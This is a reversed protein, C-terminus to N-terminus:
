RNLWALEKGAMPLSIPRGYKTAMRIELKTEGEPWDPPLTLPTYWAWSEGQSLVGLDVDQVVIEQRRQGCVLSFFLNVPECLRGAGSNRWVHRLTFSEGPAVFDPVEATEPLLRYGMRRLGMAVLDPRERCFAVSDWMLMMYNPHLMLAEEISDEVFYGRVGEPARKQNYGGFFECIMPRRRRAAYYDQMLQADWQKVAGGIGDRRLSVNEYSLAHDFASLYRFEEHSEPCHLPLPLDPRWEYSCSLTLTKKSFAEHWIDVIARLAQVHRAKSEHIYGSHWEGWEGYGRLDVTEVCPNDAVQAALAHLFARLKQQYIPNLYDPYVMELGYDQRRQVPISYNQYLWGPAGDASGDYIMADTSIRLQLRKGLATWKRISAQLDDFFFKGEEPELDAWRSLLAVNDLMEYTDPENADRHGARIDHHIVWGMGPNQLVAGTDDHHFIAM